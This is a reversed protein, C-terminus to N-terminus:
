NISPRPTHINEPPLVPYTIEPQKGTLTKLFAVIKNTENDTLKIGLQYDAMLSVAENLSWVSGDHFYPATLEINRLLPVKFVYKDEEKKTVNYRGLSNKDKDYPKVVGFKQYSNGGVGVGNHCAVCGKEKFLHYGEKEQLTLQSDDGLLWQDFRSAPTILTKEFEAIADTVENISIDKDGYVKEFKTQYDPISQLIKIALQHNSAMEKPNAIPGGAQEQLDKARGDWFQAVNFRANLVTPSNIPGIQWQHGISSPRNDDGGMALNHCSNCSLWGSKSLRPDFFLMKGLEAKNQNYSIEM